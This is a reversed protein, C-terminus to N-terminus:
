LRFRFIMVAWRHYWEELCKSVAPCGLLSYICITGNLNEDYGNFLYSLFFIILSNTRQCSYFRKRM